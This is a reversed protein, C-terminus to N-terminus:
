EPDKNGIKHSNLYKIPEKGDYTIGDIFDATAPKYGDYDAAPYDAATLTGEAVLM